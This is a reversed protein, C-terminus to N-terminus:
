DKASHYNVLELIKEATIPKYNIQEVSVNILKKEYDVIEHKTGCHNHIHGHIVWGDWYEPIDEPNHTLYFRVGGLMIVASELFNINESYDHNGRFFVINGKLKPLWYDTSPTRCFSLDGLFYVTDRIGVVSNWNKILIRNMEELDLFPRDCCKIIDYHGLHLDSIFFM